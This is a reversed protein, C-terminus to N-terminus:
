RHFKNFISKAISRNFPDLTSIPNSRNEIRYIIENLNHLDILKESTGLMFSIICCSKLDQQYNILKEIVEIRMVSTHGLDRAERILNKLNEIGSNM